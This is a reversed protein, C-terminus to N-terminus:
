GILHQVYNKPDKHGLRYSHFLYLGESIGIKGGKSLIDQCFKRDFAFTNERFKSKLWTEKKFLMFVGAIETAPRITNIHSLSNAIEIHNIINPDESFQGLHLQNHSRLRNTICGILDYNNGYEEIISEIKKGWDHTLFMSDGDRLVIWADNPVLECFENYSKGPNRNTSFPTSYFIKPM